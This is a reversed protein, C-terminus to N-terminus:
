EAKSHEDAGASGDGANDSVDQDVSAVQSAKRQTLDTNGSSYISGDGESFHPKSLPVAIGEDVGDGGGGGGGAPNSTTNIGPVIADTNAAAAASAESSPMRSRRRKLEPTPSFAEKAVHWGTKVGSVTNRAGDKALMVSTNIPDKKLKEWTENGLFNTWARDGNKLSNILKTMHTIIKALVNSVTQFLQTSRDILPKFPELKAKMYIFAEDFPTLWKNIKEIPWWMCEFIYSVSGVMTGLFDPVVYGLMLGVDHHHTM